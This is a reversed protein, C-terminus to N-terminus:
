SFKRMIDAVMSSSRNSKTRGRLTHQLAVLVAVVEQELEPLYIDIAYKDKVSILKKGVVAIIRDNEDYLEFNLSLYNGCLTWGLDAIQATDEFLQFFEHAIDFRIGDAMTVRHYERLTLIKKEVTAVLDGHADSITTKDHLSILRSSATYAVSGDDGVIKTKQKFSWFSTSIFLSHSPEGFREVNVVNAEKGQGRYRFLQSFTGM